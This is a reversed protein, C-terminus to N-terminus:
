RDYLPYSGVVILLELPGAEPEFAMATGELEASV